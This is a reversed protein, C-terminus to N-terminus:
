PVRLLEREATLKLHAAEFREFYEDIENQIDLAQCNQAETLLLEVLRTYAAFIKRHIELMSEMLERNRKCPVDPTWSNKCEELESIKGLGATLISITALDLPEGTGFRSSQTDHPIMETIGGTREDVTSIITMSPCRRNCIISVVVENGFKIEDDCTQCIYRRGSDSSDIPDRLIEICPLEPQRLLHSCVIIATVGHEKVAASIASRMSPARDNPTKM